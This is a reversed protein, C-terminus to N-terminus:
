FNQMKNGIYLFELISETKKHRQFNQIKNGLNLFEM